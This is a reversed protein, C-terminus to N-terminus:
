LEPSWEAGGLCIIEVVRWVPEFGASGKWNQAHVKRQAAEPTGEIAEITRLRAGTWGSSPAM